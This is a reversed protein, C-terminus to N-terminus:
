RGTFRAAAWRAGLYAGLANSIIDTTTPLRGHCYVQFLEVALSLLIAVGVILYPRRESAHM